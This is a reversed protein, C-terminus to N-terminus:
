PPHQQMPYFKAGPVLEIVVLVISLEDSPKCADVVWLGVEVSPHASDKHFVAAREHWPEVYKLVTDRCAMINSCKNDGKHEMPGIATSAIVVQGATTSSPRLHHLPGLLLHSISSHSIYM